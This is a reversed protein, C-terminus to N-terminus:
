YALIRTQQPSILEYTVGRWRIKRTFVSMLFNLLFLYPTFVGLVIYMWAQGVIQERLLPLVETAAAVRLGGRIAALLMPVFTLVAVHFAPLTAFFNSLTLELGLVLTLCYLFHTAAGSAWNQKSYVKTIVIQRNTFELLSRFDVNVYTPTLCEPVFVISRGAHQLARTMSYDDSVSHSWEEFVRIEDFVSRRIATGGGWCFNKGKESLMTVISANWAALLANPFSSDNPVLWRMTTAAGVQKDNLPGVLRRLWSKGPRGDSDAFVLVEFEAPLQEIAVRLNNVKEGCEQPTGAIIVHAPTKSLEAVRKVTSYASDTASALIFFIEYNRYEFETLATLNRELGPEMGKCPCLVAVNPARFGPDAQMRRRAYQWWRLGHWALYVGVGAQLIALYYFVTEV